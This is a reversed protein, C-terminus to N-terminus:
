ALQSKASTFYVAPFSNDITKINSLAHYVKMEKFNTLIAFKIKRHYAYSVAQRGEEESLSVNTKKAEIVVLEENGIKLIYDARGKLIRQEKRIDQREWGLVDYVLPDIFQNKVDEESFKSIYDKNKSAQFFQEVLEKLNEKAKDKDFM